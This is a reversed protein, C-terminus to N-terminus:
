RDAVVDSSFADDSLVTAVDDHRYCLYAPGASLGEVVDIGVEARKRRLDDYHAEATERNTSFWDRPGESDVGGTGSGDSVLDLAPGGARLRRAARRHDAGSRGVRGRHCRAAARPAAADAGAVVARHRLLSRLPVDHRHRAHDPQM